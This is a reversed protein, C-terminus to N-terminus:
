RRRDLIELARVSEAGLLHQMRALITESAREVAQGWNKDRATVRLVGDVLEVNTSRATAPGVAIQWAFATRAASAPQRRVIEALVGSSFQQIQIM